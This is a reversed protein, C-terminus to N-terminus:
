HFMSRIDGTLAVREMRFRILVGVLENTLCPGPMLVDNLCVGKFKAACDFVVRLKDPKKPHLVAHHPRCWVTSDDEHLPALAAYDDALYGQITDVYKQKLDPNKALRKKLCSLRQLAMQRNNPLFRFGPRWPLPLQYHGNVLTVKDQLLRYMMGDEKSFPKCFVSTGDAFENSWICDYVKQLSYGRHHIFNVVCNSSVSPSLSPGLLSWGLPTEIAIPEGRGGRRVSLPCFLEPVDAGLLLTVSAGKVTPFVIDNLHPLSALNAKAPILNPRVPINSISKVRPLLITRDSTLSSVKLCCTLGVYTSASNNLTQLTIVEPSGSIKLAEILKQDCFSHTSGQDLFAYTLVQQEGYSVNVPVVCLYVDDAAQNCTVISSNAIDPANVSISLDSRNANSGGRPENKTLSQRHLLTHHFMGTCGQVTCTNKRKCDGTKHRSGLCKYCLRKTKVFESREKVPLKAFKSCDHLKHSTEDCFWCAFKVASDRKLDANESNVAFNYTVVNSRKKRDNQIAGKGESFIRRGFLSNCEESQAKVFDVFDNFQAVRGTQNEIFVSQKVWKRRLDFPLKMILKTMTDLSNLSGFVQLSQLTIQTRELLDSFVKISAPDSGKIQPANKLKQECIDAIICPRGYENRLKAKALKYASNGKESFYEIREKVSAECHQLLLCFLMKQDHVRPEVHTEFNILFSNFELPNGNFKKFEPRPLFLEDYSPQRAYQNYLSNSPQAYTLPTFGPPCAVRPTALYDTLHHSPMPNRHSTVCDQGLHYQDAQKFNQGMSNSFKYSNITEPFYGTAGAASSYATTKPSVNVTPVYPRCAVVDVRDTFKVYKSDSYQSAIQGYNLHEANQQINLDKGNEHWDKSIPTRLPHTPFSSFQEQQPFSSATTPIQPKTQSMSDCGENWVQYKARAVELKRQAERQEIQQLMAFEEAKCRALIASEEAKCRALIASEDAKEKSQQCLIEAARLEAEAEKLKLSQTSSRSRSSSCSKQSCGDVSPLKSTGEGPLSSLTRPQLFESQRAEFEQKNKIAAAGMSLAIEPVGLKVIACILEDHTANINGVTSQLNEMNPERLAMIKESTLYQSDLMTKINDIALLVEDEDLKEEM